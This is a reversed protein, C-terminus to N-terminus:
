NQDCGLSQQLLTSRHVQESFRVFLTLLKEKQVLGVEKANITSAATKQMSIRVERFTFTSRSVRSYKSSCLDVFELRNKVRKLKTM